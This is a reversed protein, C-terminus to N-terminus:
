DVDDDQALQLGNHVKSPWHPFKADLKAVVKGNVLALPIPGFIRSDKSYTLNDGAVWCHGRPVQVTLRCELRHLLNSEETRCKRVQIMVGSVGPTDRLVFDGPMGIVRKIAYALEYEVPIKYSVVDGVVVGRGKRYYKSIIVWDGFSSFTPLMSIGYTGECSYFYNTFIHYGLAAGVVWKIPRYIRYLPPYRALFPPGPRLYSWIISLTSSKSNSAPTSNTSSAHRTQPRSKAQRISRSINTIKWVGGRLM